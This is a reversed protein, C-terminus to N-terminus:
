GDPGFAILTSDSRILSRNGSTVLRTQMRASSTSPATASAAQPLLAVVDCELEALTLEVEFELAVVVAVADLWGTTPNSPIGSSPPGGRADAPVM